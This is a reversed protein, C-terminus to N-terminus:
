PQVQLAFFLQARAISPNSPHANVVVLYCALSSLKWDIIMSEGNSRYIKKFHAECPIDLSCCASKARELADFIEIQLDINLEKMVETAFYKLKYSRQWQERENDLLINELHDYLKLM